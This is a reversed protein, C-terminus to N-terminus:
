TRSRVRRRTGVKRFPIRGEELLRILYPRSVNLLDAAEQTTLEYHLPVLTVPNGSALESLLQVFLRLAPLPVPVRQSTSRSPSGSKVEVAMDVTARRDHVALDFARAMARAATRAQEAQRDTLVAPEFVALATMRTEKSAIAAFSINAVVLSASRSRKDLPATTRARPTAAHIPRGDCPQHFIGPM